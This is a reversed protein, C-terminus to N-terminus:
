PRDRGNDQEVETEAKRVLAKVDSHLRVRMAPIREFILSEGSRALRSPLHRSLWLGFVGSLTVGAFVIALLLEQRGDPVRGHIHLLFVVVALWGLYIHMQLWTNAKFLPVFPLKKRANLLSLVLVLGLLLIGTYVGTPRLAIRGVHVAVLLVGAIGATALSLALRRAPYKKM